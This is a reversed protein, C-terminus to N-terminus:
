QFPANKYCYDLAYIPFVIECFLIELKTSILERRLFFLKGAAEVFENM